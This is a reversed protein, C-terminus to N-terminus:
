RRGLGASAVQELQQREGGSTRSSTRSSTSFAAPQPRDCAPEALRPRAGGVAARPRSAGSRAAVGGRGGTRAGPRLPQGSDVPGPARCRTAAPRERRVVRSSRHGRGPPGVRPGAGDRELRGAAGAVRLHERAPGGPAGGHTGPDGAGAAPPRPVRQRPRGGHAAAVGDEIWAALVAASLPPPRDPQDAVGAARGAAAEVPALVSGVRLGGAVSKSASFVHLTREPALEALPPGPEACVPRLLDDEIIWIGRRECIQALARRRELALLASTPNQLCPMVYLARPKRSRCTRELADPQLGQDDLPVPLLRLGLSEALARFGPFTLAECAVEDGPRTVAALALGIAHQAGATLVLTDALAPVGLARLWGALAQRHQPLGESPPYRLLEGADRRRAVARLAPGLEPDLSASPHNAALDVEGRTEILARLSSAAPGGSQIRTGRRGHGKLLGRREAETYARTVTGLALGLADALERQPPLRQGPLLRGSAVDQAMARAIALYLPGEAGRLDPLWQNTM